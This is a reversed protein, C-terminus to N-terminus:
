KRKSKKSKHTKKKTHKLKRKLSKTKNKKKRSLNEEDLDDDETNDDNNGRDDEPDEDTDDYVPINDTARNFKELAEKNLCWNPAGIPPINNTTKVRQVRKYKLQLPKTRMLKVTPDIRNHLLHQLKFLYILNSNINEFSIFLIIIFYQICVASSRWWRNYVYISSTKEKVAERVTIDDETIEPQVILWEEEPDTEEWEESHYGSNQL